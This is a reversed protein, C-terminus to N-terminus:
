QIIGKKIEDALKRVKSKVRSRMVRVNNDTCDLVRAIEKTMNMNDYLSYLDNFFVYREPASFRLNVQEFLIIATNIDSLSYGDFKEDDSINDKIEEFNPENSLRKNLFRTFVTSIWYPFSKTDKISLLMTYTLDLSTATRNPNGDRLYLFFDMMIDYRIEEDVGKSCLIGMLKPRMVVMILYYAAGDDHKCTVIHILEEISAKEYDIM